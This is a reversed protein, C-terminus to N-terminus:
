AIAEKERLQQAFSRRQATTRSQLCLTCIGSFTYRKARHGYKCPKGTDYYREIADIAEKRTQKM